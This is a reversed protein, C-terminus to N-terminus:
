GGAPRRARRGGIHIGGGVCYLLFANLAVLAWGAAYAVRDWWPADIVAEPLLYAWPLTLLFFWLASEGSDAANTKFSMVHLVFFGLAVALFIGALAGGVASKRLRIM